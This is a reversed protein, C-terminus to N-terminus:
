LFGLSSALGFGLLIAFVINIFTGVLFTYFCARGLVAGSWQGYNGLTKVGVWLVISQLLTTIEIFFDARYKHALLLTFSGFVVAEGVGIVTTIFGLDKRKARIPELNATEQALTSKEYEQKTALDKATAVVCDFLKDVVFKVIRQSITLYVISIVILM